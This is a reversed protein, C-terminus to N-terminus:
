QKIFSRTTTTTENSKWVITYNGKPWDISNIETKLGASPLEDILMGLSNYIEFHGELTATKISFSHSSPNPYVIFDSTSQLNQISLPNEAYLTDYCLETPLFYLGATYTGPGASDVVTQTELTPNYNEAVPNFATSFGPATEGNFSTTILTLIFDGFFSESYGGFHAIGDSITTFANNMLIVGNGPLSYSRAFLLNDSENIYITKECNLLSTIIGGSPTCFSFYPLQDMQSWVKGNQFNGDASLKGTAMQTGSLPAALVFRLGGNEMEFLGKGMENSNNSSTFTKSWILAGNADLRLFHPKIPLTEVSTGSILLDDNEAISLNDWLM